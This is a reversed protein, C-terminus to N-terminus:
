GSRIETELEFMGNAVYLRDSGKICKLVDNPTPHQKTCKDVAQHLVLLYGCVRQPAGGVYFVLRHIGFDRMRNQITERLWTVHAEGHPSPLLRGQEFVFCNGGSFSLETDYPEHQENPLFLGHKASVIAWPVGAMRCRTGFRQVRPSTYLTLPDGSGNKQGSCHTVFFTIERMPM